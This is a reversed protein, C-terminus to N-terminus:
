HTLAMEFTASRVRHIDWSSVCGPTWRVSQAASFIDARGSRRVTDAFNKVRAGSSVHVIHLPEERHREVVCRGCLLRGGFCDECRFEARLELCGEGMCGKTVWPGRGERRLLADLLSNRLRM